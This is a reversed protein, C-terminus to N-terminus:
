RRPRPSKAAKTVKRDVSATRKRSRELVNSFYQEDLTTVDRGQPGGLFFARPSDASNRDDDHTM